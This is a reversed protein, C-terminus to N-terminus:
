SHNPHQTDVSNITLRGKHHYTALGDNSEWYVNTYEGPKQEYSGRINTLQIDTKKGGKIEYGIATGTDFSLPTEM